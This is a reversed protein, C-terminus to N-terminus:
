LVTSSSHTCNFLQNIVILNYKLQMYRFETGWSYVLLSMSCNQHPRGIKNILVFILLCVLNHFPPKSVPLSDSLPVSFRKLFPGNASFALPRAKARTKCASCRLAGPLREPTAHPTSFVDASCCPAWSCSWSPTRPPGLHRFSDLCGVCAAHDDADASHMM